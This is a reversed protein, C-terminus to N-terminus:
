RPLESGEIGDYFWPGVRLTLSRHKRMLKAALEPSAHSSFDFEYGYTGDGSHGTLEIPEVDVLEQAEERSIKLETAHM